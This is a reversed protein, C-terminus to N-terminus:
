TKVSRSDRSGPMRQSRYVEKLGPLSLAIVTTDEALLLIASANEKSIVKAAILTLTSEYKAFRTGTTNSIASVSHKAAVILVSLLEDKAVGDDPMDNLLSQLAQGDPECLRGRPDLACSTLPRTLSGHESTQISEANCLWTHLAHKLTYVRTTGNDYSAILRLGRDTDTKRHACLQQRTCIQEGRDVGCIAWSMVKCSGAVKQQLVVDPGRLDLIVLTGDTWAVAMFGVNSLSVCSVSNGSAPLGFVASFVASQDIPNANGLDILNVHASPAHRTEQAPTARRTSEKPRFPKLISRRRDPASEPQVQLEAFQETPGDEDDAFSDHAGVLHGFRYLIMEGTSLAIAVELSELSVSFDTISILSPTSRYLQGAVLKRSNLLVHRIDIEALLNPYHNPGLELSASPDVSKQPLALLSSSIDWFRIHLNLHATILIKKRELVVASSHLQQGAGQSNQRPTAKGGNLPLPPPINSIRMAQLQSYAQGTCTEIIAKTTRFEGTMGLLPPLSLSQQQGHPHPPFSYAAFSRTPALQSPLDPLREDTGYTILIASSDFASGYYPSQPLLIFDEPPTPTFFFTHAIPAVSDKLAQRTAPALNPSSAPGAGLGYSAAYPPLTLVHIGVPDSPLTGGMITLTTSGAVASDAATEEATPPITSSSSSGAFRAYLNDALSSAKFGSWALKFIPERLPRGHAQEEISPDEFLSEANALHIENRDFTRVDVPKDEDLTSWFALSGDDHGVVFVLGDPRWACCTVQPRRESFLADGRDGSGGPAGPPFCLEYAREMVKDRFNWLVVGGEYAILLVNLDTPHMKVDVCM